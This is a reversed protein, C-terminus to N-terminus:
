QLVGAAIPQGDNRSGLVSHVQGDITYDISHVSGDAMVVQFGSSHASGFVMGGRLDHSSTFPTADSLPNFGAEGSRGTFRITDRDDGSYASENDGWDEGAYYQSRPVQKEGLLYTNTLGDTVDRFRVESRQYCLGTNERM